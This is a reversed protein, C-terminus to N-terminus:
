HLMSPVPGANSKPVVVFVENNKDECLKDAFAVTLGAPWIVSLDFM